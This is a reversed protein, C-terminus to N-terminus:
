RLWEKEQAREVAEWRDKVNLKDLIKHVHNKITFLSLYLRNAIEKNSLGEGIMQLIELERATLSMSEIKKRRRDACALQSLQSFMAYTVQPSFAIEGNIVSDIVCVLDNLSGSKVVYGRAGAGLFEQLEQYTETRGLVLVKTRPCDTTIQKTLETSSQESLIWDILVIDPELEHVAQLADNHSSISGVVHLWEIETLALDLCERLLQQDEVIMIRTMRHMTERSLVEKHMVKRGSTVTVIHVM